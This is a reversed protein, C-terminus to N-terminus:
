FTVCACWLTQVCFYFATVIRLHWLTAGYLLVIHVVFNHLSHLPFVFAKSGYEHLMWLLVGTSICKVATHNMSVKKSSVLSWLLMCSKAPASLPAKHLRHSQQWSLEPLSLSPCTCALNESWALLLQLLLTTAAWMTPLWRLFTRSSPNTPRCLALRSVSSLAPNLCPLTGYTFLLCVGTCFTSVTGWLRHEAM